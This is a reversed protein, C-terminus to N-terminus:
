LNEPRMNVYHVAFYAEDKFQYPDVLEFQYHGQTVLLKYAETKRKRPLHLTFIGPIDPDPEMSGLASNDALTLVDVAQAKPLYVRILLGKDAKQWGLYAFPHACRVEPLSALSM